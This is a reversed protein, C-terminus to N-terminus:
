KGSRVAPQALETYLLTGGVVLAPTCLLLYGPIWFALGLGLLAPTHRRAFRWRARFPSYRTSQPYDVFTFGTAWTTWLASLTTGLLTGVIPILQLPLLLLPVGLLLGAKQLEVRIARWANPLFTRWCCPAEPRGTALHETKEALVENFPGAFLSGCLFALLLLLLLAVAGFLWTLGTRLITMGGAVLGHWWGSGPTIPPLWGHIWGALVDIHAAFYSAAAVLCLLQILFPGAAWPWLARHRRLFRWGAAHARVGARLQDFTSM